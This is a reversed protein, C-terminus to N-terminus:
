DYGKGAMLEDLSIVSDFKFLFKLYVGNWNDNTINNVVQNKVIIRSDGSVLCMEGNNLRVFESAFYLGHGRGEGCTVGFELSRSVADRNSINKYDENKQLSSKIGIGSDVLIFELANMIKYKQCYLYAGSKSKSHLTTNCFMENIILSLQMVDEESMKFDKRFVNLIERSLDMVGLGINTIPILNGSVDHRQNRDNYDIKLQKFFDIRSAYSIASCDKENLLTINVTKGNCRMENVFSVILLYVEAKIFGKCEFKIIIDLDKSIDVKSFQKILTLLNLKDSIFLSTKQNM